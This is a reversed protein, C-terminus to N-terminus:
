GMVSFFAQIRHKLIFMSFVLLQFILFNQLLKVHDFLTKKVGSLTCNKRTFTQEFCDEFSIDETSNSPNRQGNRNTNSKKEDEIFNSEDTAVVDSLHGFQTDYLASHNNLGLRKLPYDNEM